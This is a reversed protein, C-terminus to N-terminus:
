RAAEAFGALCCGLAGNLDPYPLARVEGGRERAIIRRLAESRAGGGALVIVPGPLRDLMGAFRRYLSYNVGAILEATSYGEVIKGIIETEAFVACTSNIEAPNEYFRSMETLEVGLVAAMNEIYRGSSAACRDNTQFDAIRGGAVRIAKTDQGGIDLLTFDQLGSQYLAGLAHAQIEPIHLAGDILVALKGYGTAVVGAATEFGLASFDVRLRGNERVGAARYFSITDVAATRATDAPQEPRTMEALKVYRSGLDIGLM